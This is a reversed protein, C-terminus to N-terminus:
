RRTPMPFPTGNYHRTFWVQYRRFPRGNVQVDLDALRITEKFFRRLNAPDADESAVVLANAGIKNPLEKQAWIDYQTMRREALKITLIKGPELQLGFALASATTYYDALVIDAAALYDGHQKQLTRTLEQWGILKKTPLRDAPIGFGFGYFPFLAIIFLAANVASAYGLSKISKGADTLDPWAEILLFIATIGVPIPWNAYVDRRASVLVFITALSASIWGLLIPFSDGIKWAKPVVKFASFCLFPFTLPGFMLLQSGVLEAPGAILQLANLPRDSGVGLHGLNHAVNVWNNTANWALM